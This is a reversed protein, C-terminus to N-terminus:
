NPRECSAKSGPAHGDAFATRGGFRSGLEDGKEDVLKGLFDVAETLNPSYLPTCDVQVTAVVSANSVFFAAPRETRNLENIAELLEATSEVDSLVHSFVNIVPSKKHVRVWVLASGFRIPIDGEEDVGLDPNGTKERLAALAAQQLQEWSRPWLLGTTNGQEAEPGERMPNIRLSPLLIRERRRNRARYCLRSPTKVGLVDRLTTVALAAVEAFPAPHPWDRFHNPSAVGDRHGAAAAEAVSATPDLWGLERLGQLQGDDLKEDDKLSTNSVAEARFGGHGFSAFQVFAPGTKDRLLLYQEDELVSLAEALRTQFAEWSRPGRRWPGKLVRPATKVAAVEVAPQEEKARQV